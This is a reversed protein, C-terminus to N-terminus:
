DSTVPLLIKRPALIREAIVFGSLGSEMLMAEGSMQNLSFSGAVHRIARVKWANLDASEYSIQHTSAQLSYAKCLAPNDALSITITFKIIIASLGFSLLIKVQLNSYLGISCILESAGSM